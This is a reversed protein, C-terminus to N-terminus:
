ILRIMPKIEECVDPTVIRLLGHPTNSILINLGTPVTSLPSNLAVNVSAVPCSRALWGAITNNSKFQGSENRRLAETSGLITFNM